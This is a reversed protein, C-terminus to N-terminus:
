RGGVGGKVGRVEGGEGCMVCVSVPRAACVGVEVVRGM